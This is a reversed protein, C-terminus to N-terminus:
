SNRDHSPWHYAPMVMEQFSLFPTTHIAPIHPHLNDHCQAYLHILVHLLLCLFQLYEIWNQRGLEETQMDAMCEHWEAPWAAKLWSCWFWEFLLLLNKKTEGGNISINNHKRCRQNGLETKKYPRLTSCWPKVVQLIEWSQCPNATNLFLSQSNRVLIIRFVCICETLM